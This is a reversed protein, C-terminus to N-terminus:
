GEFSGAAELVLDVETQAHETGLTWLEYGSPPLWVGRDLMHHFFRAYKDHDAAMADAFDRVPGLSFFVSFLSGARNATIASGQSALRGALGDTLASATETLRAYPDLKKALDLAAIGAAVAVPNGSLTGAQYVPGAPALQEMVDRRGGLAACPFGGGMVKGLVTLDPVVAYESQAGGFAIRFGTIVEDFVLLAGSATCLERLGDLFGPEPPIVGMNAAVPEVIVAAIRKGHEEFLSRVTKADNFPATLTDRAAGETVGPSGPIGFTAVGSGAGKALLADSHGHYCGDFKLVLPRGTSGRALRIASMAAETGSSVLRVQEVAPMADTIREALEVEPETPAGFSTGRGAAAKAAEVIESRAHGFLLAGWSQVLDVYRNGDADFVYAGEGRVAFRPTGGVAGFARVPSNVGGPIVHQARRFLDESRTV